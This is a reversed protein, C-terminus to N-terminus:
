GCVKVKMKGYAVNPALGDAVISHTCGGMFACSVATQPGTPVVFVDSVTDTSCARHKATVGNNTVEITLVPSQPTLPLPVGVDFTSEPNANAISAGDCDNEQGYFNMMCGVLGNPNLNSGTVALITGSTVIPSAFSPQTITLTAFTCFLGNFGECTFTTDGIKIAVNIAPSYVVASTTCEFLGYANISKSECINDGTDANILKVEDVDYEGIGSLVANFISGCESGENIELGLFKPELIRGDYIVGLNNPAGQWLYLEIPLATLGSAVNVVEIIM